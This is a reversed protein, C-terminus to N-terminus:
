LKWQQIVLDMYFQWANGRGHSFGWPLAPRQRRGVCAAALINDVSLLDMIDM